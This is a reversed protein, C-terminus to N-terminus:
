GKIYESIKVKGDLLKYYNFMSEFQHIPDRLITVFVTSPGLLSRSFVYV